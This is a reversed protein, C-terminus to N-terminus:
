DFRRALHLALAIYLCLAIVSSKQILDLFVMFSIQNGGENFLIVLKILIDETQYNQKVIGDAGSFTKGSLMWDNCSAVFGDGAVVACGDDDCDGHVSAM